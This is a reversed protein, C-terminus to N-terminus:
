VASTLRQWLREIHPGLLIMASVLALYGAAATTAGSAAAATPLGAVLLYGAVSGARDRLDDTTTDADLGTRVLRGVCASRSEGDDRAAEVRAALDDSVVASITESM